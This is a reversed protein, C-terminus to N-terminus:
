IVPITFYMTHFSFGWFDHAYFFLIAPTSHCLNSFFRRCKSQIGIVPSVSFM